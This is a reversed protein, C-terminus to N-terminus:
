LTYGVSAYFSRVTAPIIGPGPYSEARRTFYKQNTLNNVGASFKWKNINYETSLDFISYAPIRGTLANPNFISNTADSFQDSLHSFQFSTKFGKYRYNLGTRLMVNPVYEVRRGRIASIDSEIYEADTLALNIFLALRSANRQVTKLLKTIDLESFLEIGVHRSNGINTRFLTTSGPLEYLGIRDNYRLLFLSADLSLWPFLNGRIGLDANFGNEDQINPDLQFNPNVVRLDSFTISRFNTSFNTYLELDLKLDYNLGVGFLPFVREESSSDFNTTSSILNGSFDFRNLKWFGEAETVIRELRVGTTLSLKSNLNILNEIFLSQNQSPFDYDFEEPDNPNLFYFDPNSSNNADGQMRRTLGQYLRMGAVYTSPKGFLSYNHLLRAEMGYNGFRDNILTRNELPNDPVGIQELNGLANRESLLGFTRINLKTDESFNYDAILALLNWTVGFWNRGRNSSTIDGTNFIDDTLGGPQQAEYDLFSYELTLKLKEDAQYGIRAFATHSNFGSNDRWGDGRRFQYYSYYDFKDKTGGLSVFSNTLGFSGVSQEATIKLPVNPADKLKFNLMGGFQTGYQLSAAGRVIEIRDIAQLAPMYYSEPYGLADASMDYGNQRTNFNATRSPGLGRAAIDLQLGAFDSEWINLGPVKAFVQRATNAAKNAAFDDLVIVENKKAEFIGFGEVGKLRTIGYTKKKTAIAVEDLQFVDDKLFFNVQMDKSVEITKSMEMMGLSTVSITHVGKRLRIEFNGSEDSVVFKKTAKDVILAESIPQKDNESLIRGSVKYSQAQIGLGVLIFFYLIVNRMTMAKFSTDLRQNEM